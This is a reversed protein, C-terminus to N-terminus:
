HSGVNPRVARVVLRTTPDLPTGALDGHTQIDVFGADAVAAVLETATYIRLRFERTEEGFSVQSTRVGTAWDTSGTEIDSVPGGDPDFSWAIRDRHMTEIVLQGGPRLVDFWASLCRRDEEDSAFYGFSSFLNLVADYPGGVPERMDGVHYSPGPHDREARRIQDPSADIGTVRYGADHLPQAFRGFGSPVDLVRSGAELDLLDILREVNQATSEFAGQETWVDIYADDFFTEWWDQSDTM